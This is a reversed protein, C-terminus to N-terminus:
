FPDAGNVTSAQGNVAAKREQRRRQELQTRLIVLWEEPFDEFDDRGAFASKNHRCQGRIQEDSFGKARIAGLMRFRPGENIRNRSKAGILWTDFEQLVKDLDTNTFDKASKEVGLADKHIVKRMADADKASYGGFKVLSNKVKLWTSLYLAWQKASLHKLDHPANM